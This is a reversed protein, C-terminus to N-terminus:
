HRVRYLLLPAKPDGIPELYAPVAGRALRAVLGDPAAEAYKFREPAGPCFAVYDVHKAAIVRRVAADGGLLADYAATIGDRNRHYPAALVAHPTEALIVPGLDIFSLVTGRPLQALPALSEPKACSNKPDSLPKAAGVGFLTTAEAIGAAALVLVPSSLALMGALMRVQATRGTGFGGVLGAALLPAAILNASASGRVQWCAVALLASVVLIPVLFLPQQARPARALAAGGFLIAAVVPLYIPLLEGPHARAISLANQAESVNALWLSAIRPDLEGYPSGFADPFAFAFLALAILGAAGGAPLRVWASPLKASLGALVALGGGSLLAMGVWVISIADDAPVTWHSPATTALFCCLTGLGFALGFASTSPSAKEGEITWRLGVAAILAAIAPMMELGVAISVAAAIGGLAPLLRKQGAVSTATIAALILLIQIGHHDLAGPRVHMLPPGSVAALLIAVLMATRGGLRRALVGILALMPLLM